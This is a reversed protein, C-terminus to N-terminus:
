LLYKVSAQLAGLSSNERGVEAVSRAIEWFSTCVNWRLAKANATGEEQFARGWIGQRMTSAHCSSSQRPEWALGPILLWPSSSGNRERVRFAWIKGTTETSPVTLSPALWSRISPRSSEAMCQTKAIWAVQGLVCGHETPNARVPPSLAEWLVTCGLCVQGTSWVSQEGGLM